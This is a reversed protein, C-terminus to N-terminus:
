GLLGLACFIMELAMCSRAAQKQAVAAETQALRLRATQTRRLSAGQSQAVQDLASAQALFETPNDALLVQLSTDVGGSAYTARALANVQGVVDALAKKQRARRDNLVRLNNTIENLNVRAENYRETASEAKAELDRVQTRVQDLSPAAHATGPILTVMLASAALAVVGVRLASLKSFAPSVGTTGKTAPHHENLEV